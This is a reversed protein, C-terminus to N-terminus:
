CLFVCDGAKKLIFTRSFDVYSRTHTYTHIHARAHVRHTYATHTIRVRTHHATCQPVTSRRHVYRYHMEGWRCRYFSSSCWPSYPPDYVDCGGGVGVAYEQYQGHWENPLSPFNVDKPNCRLPRACTLTADAHSVYALRPDVLLRARCCTMHKFTCIRHTSYSTRARTRAWRQKM